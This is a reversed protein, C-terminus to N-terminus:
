ELSQSPSIGRCTDVTSANFDVLHSIGLCTLSISAKQPATVIALFLVGDPDARHIFLGAKVKPV